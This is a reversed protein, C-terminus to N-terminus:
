DKAQLRTISVIEKSERTFAGAFAAADVQGSEVAAKVKHRDLAAIAAYHSGLWEPLSTAERRAKQWDPSLLQLFVAQGLRQRILEEDYTIKVREDRRVKLMGASTQANILQRGNARMWAGVQERVDQEERELQGIEQRLTLVRELLSQLDQMEVEGADM